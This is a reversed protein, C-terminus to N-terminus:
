ANEYLHRFVPSMASVAEHFEEDDTKRSEAERRKSLGDLPKPFLDSGLAYIVPLDSWSAPYDLGMIEAGTYTSPDDALCEFLGIADGYRLRDGLDRQISWGHM